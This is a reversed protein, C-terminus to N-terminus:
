LKDKAFEEVKYGGGEKKPLKTVAFWRAWPYMEAAVKFKVRADDEWHGKTEYIEFHGVATIVFFDPTLTTRDALRFTLHEFYWRAIEGAELRKDLVVESYEKEMGNMKGPERRTRFAKGPVKDAQPHFRRKFLM